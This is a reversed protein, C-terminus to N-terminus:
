LYIGPWRIIEFLLVIGPYIFVLIGSALNALTSIKLIKRPSLEKNISNRELLKQFEFRYYRWDLYLVLFFITLVFFPYGVIFFALFLYAITDLPLFIVINVILVSFFLDRKYLDANRLFAYIVGFEIIVVFFQSGILNVLIFIPDKFLPGFYQSIYYSGFMTLVVSVLIYIGIINNKNNSKV